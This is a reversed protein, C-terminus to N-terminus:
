KYMLYGYLFENWVDPVGPLCWHTCDAYSAPNAMQEKTLPAFQKRFVTPHGDKRYDSLETINLIKVHIGKAELTGFYSKAKEMMSYDTGAAKYGIKYVPETENLCKNKDVGGWSSAWTHTPSSGAFFIRTKNKDINEGLWETLKKLAIEFGDVMEVEELRADGDEFSGYMVKMRMDPNHKRWWVYSNFIIIDADRWANAHKDIRDARIIRYDVRHIIPDDSNSEVLLPSWYFDITANYEFAKFSILSGNFVRTKLSNDPISSEVMCVLSVWQNRNLSDGVFVLRKNRLKELLRTANFRPLDCGHPQWRWHQYMDDKRGYKNCSLEPFIFDCKLGSYLPRSVNDYVWQGISWNCEKSADPLEATLQVQAEKVRLQEHHEAALRVQMEQHGHEIAMPVQGEQGQYFYFLFTASSIIISFAVLSNLISKLGVPSSLVTMKPTAEPKM